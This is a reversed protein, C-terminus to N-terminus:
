SRDVHSMDTDLNKSHLKKRTLEESINQECVDILCPVDDLLPM